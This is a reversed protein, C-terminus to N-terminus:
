IAEEKRQDIGTVPAILRLLPIAARPTRVRNPTMQAQLFFSYNMYFILAGFHSAFVRFLTWTQMMGNLNM